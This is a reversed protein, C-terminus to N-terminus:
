RENKFIMKVNHVILRTTCVEHANKFCAYESFTKPCFGFVTKCKQLVM